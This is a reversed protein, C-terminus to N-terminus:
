GLEWLELKRYCCFIFIICRSCFYITLLLAESAWVRLKGIGRWLPASQWTKYSKANLQQRVVVSEESQNHIMFYSTLVVIVIGVFSAVAIRISKMIRLERRSREPRAYNMSRAIAIVMAVGGVMIASRSFTLLLAVAGLVSTM